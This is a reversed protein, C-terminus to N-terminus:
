PPTETSRTLLNRFWAMRRHNRAQYGTIRYLWGALNTGDFGALKREVILFVEQAIDERDSAPIGFARLWRCVDAFHLRYVAAFDLTDGRVAAAGRPAPIEHNAISAADVDPDRLSPPSVKM